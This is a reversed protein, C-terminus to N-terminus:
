RTNFKKNFEKQQNIDSVIKDYNEEIYSFALQSIESYSWDEITKQVNPQKDFTYFLEIDEQMISIYLKFKTVINNTLTYEYKLLSFNM